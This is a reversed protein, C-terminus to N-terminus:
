VQSMELGRATVRDRCQGSKKGKKKKRSVKKFDQWKVKGIGERVKDEGEFTMRPIAGFRYRSFDTEQLRSDARMRAHHWQIWYMQEHERLYRNGHFSRLVVDRSLLGLKRRSPTQDHMRKTIWTVDTPTPAVPLVPVSRAPEGTYKTWQGMMALLTIQSRALATPDNPPVVEGYRTAPDDPDTLVLATAGVETAVIPVGSLAAEGIALPLGESLSSNMFVWADKLVEKPNGFGALFVNNTLNREQILNSTEVMYSPQRDQAGYVLLQYDKFGYENVIVDAALVATKIDKIFQINSLMVVTPKTSRIKKVPEFSDMSSIGNVIPDIKRYFLKESGIRGGDTGIEAEWIPNYVSTCPLVIDVHLYALKSALSIGALLMAQVPIPLLCQAPSINLCSERWLIAHDWLGFTTGKRYKLVMGFLSSIGHHTSQFVRPCDKPDQPLQVSYIFFYCMYLDLASKFNAITPREIDFYESADLINPDNDYPCLWSEIWAMEVEKSRWTKNYDHAEFYTSMSLMSNSATILDARSPHKIRAGKVFAKLLPIFLGVVDRQLKTDQMKEDVQSQLLNDILGHNATKGDMGWLPLLKMSQINKEIQYRPIGYDNATEGIVHNRITTLGDVLDRRCNSVGGPADPWCGIDNFIISIRNDTDQYCNPRNTIQNADKGLGMTYLDAAKILLACRQSVDTAVEIAGVIGDTNLDLVRTAELLRGTNRYNWYSQLLPEERLIMEDIWCATTADLETSKMWLRWLESRLRSTPLKRYVVKRSWYSMGFIDLPALKARFPALFNDQNNIGPIISRIHRPQHHVLLDDSDFSLHTPKILLQAEDEFIKPIDILHHITSGEEVTNSIIPDTKHTYSWNTTYKKEGINRVVRTVKESPVADVDVEDGSHLGPSHCWYIFLSRDPSGVLRYDARLLQISTKPYKKYHYVFTYQEAALTIFGNIIRGKKDYQCRLKRTPESIDKYVPWRGMDTGFYFTSNVEGTSSMDSRSILRNAKDYIATAIPGTDTPSEQLMGEHVQLQINGHINRYAFGTITTEPLEVTITNRCLVRSSGHRAMTTIKALIPRRAIIFVWIWFNRVYWCVRWFALLMRLIFQHLYFERLAYWLEREVESAGSTLVAIWKAVRVIGRVLVELWLIPSSKQAIHLAIQTSSPTSPEFAVSNSICGMDELRSESIHHIQLCLYVAFDAVRFNVTHNRSWELISEDIDIRHGSIRALIAKRVSEPTKQWDIDVDVYLCLHRMLEANTNRIVHRLSEGTETAIQYEIRKSTFDTEHMLHESLVAEQHTCGQIAVAVHHLMIETLFYCLAQANSERYSELETEDLFGATIHLSNKDYDSISWSDQLGRARFSQRSAVSIVINGNCWMDITQRLLESSWPALASFNNPIDLAFQLLGTIGRSVITNDFASVTYKADGMVKLGEHCFINSRTVGIRIQNHYRGPTLELASTPLSSRKTTPDRYVWFSTMVAATLSAVDLAIVDSYRFASTAPIAHLLIGILLGAFACAFVSKVHAAPSTTFCRNFQAFLAGTYGIMYAYFLTMDSGKEVVFMLTLASVGLIFVLKMALDVSGQIWLRRRDRLAKKQVAHAHQLDVLREESLKSTKAWYKQLTMDVAIASALFYLLCLGTSYRTRTDTEQVSRFPRASMIVSVWHDMLVMLFFGVNQGLDYKSYRFLFFASHEKLGRVMQQQAKIALDLQVFWSSSFADPLAEGEKGKGVLWNAFPLGKAAKVVLQDTDRGFAKVNRRNFADVEDRFVLQATEKFEQGNSEEGAGVFENKERQGRLRNKYWTTIDNEALKPILGVWTSWQRSLLYYQLLLLVLFVTMTLLYIILDYGNVFSSLLPSVALVPFTRWLVTRGSTLPSGSFHMTAMVGLLNLYTSLLLLYAAWVGGARISIQASFGIFGGTAVILSVILGGSLRQVFFINANDFAWSYLYMSGSSGVWGTVWATILLSAILAYNAATLDESQMFATSFFGRGTTVLLIVDAIAPVCFISLAGFSTAAETLEKQARRLTSSKTDVSRDTEEVLCLESIQSYSYATFEQKGDWIDVPPHQRLFARYDDYIIRGLARPKLGFYNECQSGLVWLESFVAAQDPQTLFFPCRDTAEIFVDEFAAKRLVCFFILAFLDANIDVYRLKGDLSDYANALSSLLCDLSERDASFLARAVLEEVARYLLCLNNLDPLREAGRRAFEELRRQLVDEIALSGDLFLKACDGNWSDQSTNEILSKSCVDRIADIVPTENNTVRLRQLLSLLESTTSHALESRINVPIKPSSGDGDTVELNLEEEYRDLRSVGHYALYTHLIVGIASPAKQSVFIDLARSKSSLGWLHAAEDPVRFASDLGKYICIEGSTLGKVLGDLLEPNNSRARSAQLKTCIKPLDVEELMRLMKLDRLQKLTTLVASYQLSTVSSRLPMCGLSSLSDGGGNSLSFDSKMPAISVWAPSDISVPRETRIRELEEPLSKHQLSEYIRPIVAQVNELSLRSVTETTHESLNSPLREECWKKQLEVTDTRKLYDFAGLSQPLRRRQNNEWYADAVPAHEFAAGYFEALKYSRRVVSASPRTHWLDYFGAFFSPRAVRKEACRGMLHRVQTARFFDRRQGDALICGNEVIIGAILDFDISKWIRADSDCMVIVEIVWDFLAQVLEVVVEASADDSIRIVLARCGQGIRLVDLKRVAEPVGLELLSSLRFDQIDVLGVNQKGAVVTSQISLRGTGSDSPWHGHSSLGPSPGRSPCRSTPVTYYSHDTSGPFLPIIGLDYNQASDPGLVSIEESVITFSRVSKRFDERFISSPRSSSDHNSPSLQFIGSLLRSQKWGSISNRATSPASIPLTKVTRISATASATASATVSAYQFEETEEPLSPLATVLDQSEELNTYSIKRRM